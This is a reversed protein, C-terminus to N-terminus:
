QAVLKIDCGVRDSVENFKSVIADEISINERAALLDLYIIIDAIEKALDSKFSPLSDGRNQKKIINCMEGVEGAVANGWTPLSWDSLQMNFGEISRKENVKRLEKLVNM